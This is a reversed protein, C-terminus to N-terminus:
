LFSGVDSKIVMKRYGELSPTSIKFSFSLEQTSLISLPSSSPQIVPVTASSISQLNMQQTDEMGSIMLDDLAGGSTIKM